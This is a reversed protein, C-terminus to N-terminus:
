PLPQQPHELDLLLTKRDLGGGYGTLSGNSGIVRHCPIILAIPNYHNAMGVARSAAPNGIDTAIQAYTATEGYPITCLAAWVKMRFETGAPALPITFEQRSGGFYQALQRKAENFAGRDHKWDAEITPATDDHGEMSLHTLVEGDGVLTLTGIPSKM